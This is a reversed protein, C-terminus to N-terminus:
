CFAWQTFLTRIRLKGLGYKGAHPSFVSWLISWICVSKVCHREYTLKLYLYIPSFSNRFLINQLEISCYFISVKCIKKNNRSYRESWRLPSIHYYWILIINPQTWTLAVASLYRCTMTNKPRNWSSLSWFSSIKPQKMKSGIYGPSFLCYKQSPLILWGLVPTIVGRHLDKWSCWNWHWISIWEPITSKSIILQRM